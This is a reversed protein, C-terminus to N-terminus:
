QLRFNKSLLPHLTVSNATLLKVFLDLVTLSICYYSCYLQHLSLSLISPSLLSFPVWCTFWIHWPGQVIKPSRVIIGRVYARSHCMNRLVSPFQVSNLCLSWNRIIQDTCSSFFDFNELSKGSNVDLVPVMEITRELKTFQQAYSNVTMTLLIISLKLNTIVVRAYTGWTLNAM